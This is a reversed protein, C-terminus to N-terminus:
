DTITNSTIILTIAASLNLQPIKSKDRLFSRCGEGKPWFPCNGCKNLFISIRTKDTEESSNWTMERAHVTMFMSCAAQLRMVWNCDEAVLRLNRRASQCVSIPGEYREGIDLWTAKGLKKSEKLNFPFADCDCRFVWCMPRDPSRSHTFSQFIAFRFSM